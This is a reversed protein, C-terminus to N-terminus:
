CHILIVNFLDPLFWLGLLCLAHLGLQSNNQINEYFSDPRMGRHLITNLYDRWLPLTAVWLSWNCEHRICQSDGESRGGNEQCSCGSRYTYNGQFDWGLSFLSFSIVWLVLLLKCAIGILSGVHAIAYMHKYMLLFCLLEQRSNLLPLHLYTVPMFKAHISMSSAHHVSKLGWPSLWDVRPRFSM